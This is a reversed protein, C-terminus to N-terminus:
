FDLLYSIENKLSKGYTVKLAKANTAARLLLCVLTVGGVVALAPVSKDKVVKVTKKITTVKM